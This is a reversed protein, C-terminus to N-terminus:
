NRLGTHDVKKWYEDFKFDPSNEYDHCRVCLDETRARKVLAKARALDSQSVSKANRDWKEFIDVHVSGPGHCNECQQGALLDHRHPESREAAIEQPLFGSLYPYAEQPNWGTVHCSLCEPDRRRDVWTGEFKERGKALSTYAAAHKTTSWKAFAQKHCEGCKQAGVYTGETPPSSEPLDAFVDALNDALTNQYERMIADMAPDHKFRDRDLDVLEYRLPQKEDDPYVSLVGAYKGKHGVTVLLSDGVQEPKGHPDEPGGASVVVNFQPFRKALARSEELSAYSLLVNIQTKEDGFQKVVEELSEAAPTFAVDASAGEPFLGRQQSEGLIMAAGIKVGGSEFVVSKRPGGELDPVGFFTENSGLFALGPSGDDAPVHESLLFAPQLRLEEPGLGVGRYDLTRLADTIAAFKYESQKRARKVTGGLDLGAVDWGKDRLQKMLDSRRAMGGSQKESCGCPELYGHQEGTLVLVAAPKPWDQFRPPQETAEVRPPQKRNAGDPKDVASFISSGSAYVLLALAVGVLALLALAINRSM